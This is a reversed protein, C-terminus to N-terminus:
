CAVEYKSLHINEIFNDNIITQITQSMLERMEPKKFDWEYVVSSEQGRGTEVRKILVSSSGTNEFLKQIKKRNNEPFILELKYLFRQQM